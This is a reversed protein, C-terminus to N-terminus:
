ELNNCVSVPSPASLPDAVGMSAAGTFKVTTHGPSSNVMSVGEPTTSARPVVVTVAFTFPLLSLLRSFTARHSARM